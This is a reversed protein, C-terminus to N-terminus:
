EPHYQNLWWEILSHALAGVPPLWMDGETPMKRSMSKHLAVRLVEPSFWAATELEEPDIDV